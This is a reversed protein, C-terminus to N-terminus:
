KFSNPVSYYRGGLPVVKYGRVEEGAVAKSFTDHSKGKLLVYSDEPLGFKNMEDASVPAVSGWHGRNQGDQAPTLGASIAREMDYGTGNPDFGPVSPTVSGGM